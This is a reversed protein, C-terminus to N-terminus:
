VIRDNAGYIKIDNTKMVRADKKRRKNNRIDVEVEHMFGHQLIIRFYFSLSRNKGLRLM